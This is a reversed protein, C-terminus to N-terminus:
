RSFRIDLVDGDKVIYEKGELRVLGHKRCETLSGYQDLDTFAVTEARIFGNQLDTHIKGAAEPATAGQHVPWAHVEKEGATLFTVLHLLDYAARIFRDRASAELGYDALFDVQEEPPLQAIEIELAACFNLHPLGLEDALQVAGAAKGGQLDDEGVNCAVLLPLATVLTMGSLLKQQDPTLGMEIVPKGASLAAHLKELLHAENSGRDKKAGEAIRDLRRGVIDLDAMTLELLLTELDGRADLPSGTHDLDGFCQLVIAFADAEQALRSLHKQVQQGGGGSEIPDTDVLMIEAYTIKPPNYIEALRLLRPEPVQVAGVREGAGSPQPPLGTLAAFCSSKGSGPLGILGIKM